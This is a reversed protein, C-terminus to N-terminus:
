QRSSRQLKELQIWRRMLPVAFDIGTEDVFVVDHQKLTGLASQGANPSLGAQLFLEDTALAAENKALTLLLQLQGTPHSKEAQGWIGTFYYSGQAYFTPNSVIADVNAPTFRGDNPKGEEFVMQNYYSVLSQGILQTLFPQGKVLKFIHRVTIHDFDLPFDATPNALLEGTAAENLFSVRVPTVSAFLPNWYDSTMEELTHLGALAFILWPESHIIGRLFDLLEVDLQDKEIAAEILEFEDITLIVRKHQITPKLQRLFQNFGNYGNGNQQFLTETPEPVGDIGADELADFIALALYHLLQGTHQLRGARQMTFQAVVTDTGFRRQGLNQLISTKGMRRHGYLVVSSVHRQADSGWLEELRRFIEARGVFLQGHVPNGAIFPNAVPSTIAMEGFKGAALSLTDRWSEAIDQIIPWEPYPCVTEGAEILETLQAGARGLAATRNLRSISEEAVRAESAIAHLHKLASIAEPRLIEARTAALWRNQNAWDAVDTLSDCQAGQHLSLVSQYLTEGYPITQIHTFAEEAKALNKRHLHYFGACAARAATDYRLPSTFLHPWREQRWKHPVIFLGDAFADLM